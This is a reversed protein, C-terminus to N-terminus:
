VFFVCVNFLNDGKGLYAHFPLIGFSMQSRFISPNLFFIAFHGESYLSDICCFPSTSGGWLELM